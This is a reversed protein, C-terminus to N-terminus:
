FFIGYVTNIYESTKFVSQITKKTKSNFSLEVFSHIGKCCTTATRQVTWRVAVSDELESLGTRCRSGGTLFIM